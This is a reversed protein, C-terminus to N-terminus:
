SAPIFSGQTPTKQESIDLVLNAEISAVRDTGLVAKVDALIDATKLDTRTTLSCM